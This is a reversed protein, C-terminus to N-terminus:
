LYGGVVMMAALFVTFAGLICWGALLWGSMDDAPDDAQMLRVAQRSRDAQGTIHEDNVPHFGPM